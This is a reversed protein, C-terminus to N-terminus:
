RKLEMAGYVARETEKLPPSLVLIQIQLFIPFISSQVKWNWGM